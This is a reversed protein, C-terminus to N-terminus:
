PLVERKNMEVACYPTWYGDKGTVAFKTLGAENRIYVWVFDNQRIKIKVQGSPFGSLPLPTKNGYELNGFIKASMYGGDM